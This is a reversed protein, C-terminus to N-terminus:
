DVESIQAIFEADGEIVQVRYWAIYKSIAAGIKYAAADSHMM